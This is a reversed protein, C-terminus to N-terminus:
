MAPHKNPPREPPTQMGSKVDEAPQIHPPTRPVVTDPPKDPPQSPMENSFIQAFIFSPTNHRQSNKRAKTTNKYKIHCQGSQLVAFLLAIPGAQEHRDTGGTGLASGTAKQFPCPHKATQFLFRPSCVQLAKLAKQPSGHGHIPCICLTDDHICIYIIIYIYM